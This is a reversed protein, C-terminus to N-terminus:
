PAQGGEKMSTRLGGSPLGLLSEWEREREVLQLATENLAIEANATEVVGELYDVRKAEGLDMQRQLLAEKRKQVGLRTRALDRTRAAQLYSTVMSTIQYRLDQAIQEKKRTEADLNLSATKRDVWATVSQLPSTQVSLSGSRDKGPSTSAGASYTTPSEPVAFSFTLKGTYRPERLPFQDGAFEVSMQLDVDPIFPFAAARAQIAAKQVASDQRKLNPSYSAALTFLNEERGALALAPASPDVNGILVLSEAPDLSLVKKIQYRSDELASETQSLTIELSLLDIEAQALDLELAEGVKVQTQMIQINQDALDITRQLIAKKQQAVLLGAFQQRLTQELTRYRQQLDERAMSLDLRAVRREWPKTGGRFLPQTASLSITKSWTDPAGTTVTDNEDYGVSLSPFYQRLGLVFTLEQASLLAGQYALDQSVALARNVAQDETFAAASLDPAAAAFLWTVTLLVAAPRARM